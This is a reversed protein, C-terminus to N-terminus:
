LPASGLKTERWKGPYGDKVCQFYGFVNSSGNFLMDGREYYKMNNPTSPYPTYSNGVDKVYALDIVRKKDLEVLLEQYEGEGFIRCLEQEEEVIDGWDGKLVLYAKIEEYNM